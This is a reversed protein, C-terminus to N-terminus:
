KPKSCTPLTRNRATPQRRCLFTQPQRRPSTEDLENNKRLHAEPKGGIVDDDFITPPSQPPAAELVNIWLANDALWLDYDGGRLHFRADDDFQGINEIFMVPASQLTEEIQAQMPVPSPSAVPAAAAPQTTITDVRSMSPTTFLLLTFLLLSLPFLHKM